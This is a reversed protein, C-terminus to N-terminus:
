CDLQLCVYKARMILVIAFMVYICRVARFAFYHSEARFVSGEAIDETSACHGRVCCKMMMMMMM